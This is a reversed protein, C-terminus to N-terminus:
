ILWTLLPYASDGIIFPPINEGGLSRTTLPLLTGENAKEYLSLHVFVRADHVSGPRGIYIDTFRYKHYEGSLKLARSLLKFKTM